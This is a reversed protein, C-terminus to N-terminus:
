SLLKAMGGMFIFLVFGVFVGFTANDNGIIFEVYAPVFYVLPAVLVAGAALVCIKAASSFAVWRDAEIFVSGVVLALGPFLVLGM